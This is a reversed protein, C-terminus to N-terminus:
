PLEFFFSHVFTCPSAAPRPGPNPQNSKSKSKEVTQGVGTPSILYLFFPCLLQAFIPPFDMDHEVWGLDLVLQIVRYHSKKQFWEVPFM